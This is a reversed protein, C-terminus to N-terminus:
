QDDQLTRRTRDKSDVIDNFTTTATEPNEIIAQMWLIDVAAEAQNVRAASVRDFLVRSDEAVIVEKETEKVQATFAKYQNAREDWRARGEEFPTGTELIDSVDSIKSPEVEPPLDTQGNNGELRLTEKYVDLLLKGTIGPVNDLAQMWKLDTVLETDRKRALNRDSESLQTLDSTRISDIGDTIRNFAGVVEKRIDQPNRNGEVSM